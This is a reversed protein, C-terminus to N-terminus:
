PKTILVQNGGEVSQFKIKIIGENAIDTLMCVNDKCDLSSINVSSFFVIESHGINNTINFVLERNELIYVRDISSPMNMDIMIKSSEGSFYVTEATDVMTRGALNIQSYIIELNSEYSYKFFMYTAPIIIGLSLVIVMLYELSAQARIKSM